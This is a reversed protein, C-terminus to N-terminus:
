LDTGPADVWEADGGVGGGGPGGLRRSVEDGVQVLAGSLKAEEDAVSVRLEGCREVGDTGAFADVGHLGWGAGWSGIAVGLSEYAADSAFAGVPNQDVVFAVGGFHEVFVKSMESVMSGVLSALLAWGVM